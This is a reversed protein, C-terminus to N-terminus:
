CCRRTSSRCRAARAPRCRRSARTRAARRHRRLRRDLADARRQRRKPKRAPREDPAKGRPGPSDEVNLFQQVLKKCRRTAPRSSARRRDRGRLPDGPDAPGGLVRRAEAAAAGRGAACRRRRHGHQARLDEGAPRPELDPGHLHGAAEDPAPLGAPARLAGPRHGYHRFRVYQLAKRACLRQYGPDIDIYTFEASDNFYDRDVDAYVCGIANVARWFGKFTVNVVHNIPLGTLQKCRRSRSRRARRVRLGRQDQRRRPGPHEVKLDRPLSM